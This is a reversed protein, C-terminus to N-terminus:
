VTHITTRRRTTRARRALYHVTGMIPLAILSDIATSLVLDIMEELIAGSAYGIVSSEKFRWIYQVDPILNVSLFSILSGVVAILVWNPIKCIPRDRWQPLLLAVVSYSGVVLLLTSIFAPAYIEGGSSRTWAHIIGVFLGSVLAGILDANRSNSVLTEKM